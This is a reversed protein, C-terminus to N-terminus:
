RDVVVPRAYRRVDQLGPELAEVGRPGLARREAVVRAQAKGDGALDDFGVAAADPGLVADVRLALHLARTEGHLEGLGLERARGLARPRRGPRATRLAM